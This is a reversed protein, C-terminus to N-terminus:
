SSGSDDDSSGRLMRKVIKIHPTIPPESKSYSTNVYSFSHSQSNNYYSFSPKSYWFSRKVLSMNKPVPEYVENRAVAVSTQICLLSKGDIDFWQIKSNVKGSVFPELFITKVINKSSRQKIISSKWINQFDDGSVTSPWVSMTSRNNIGVVLPCETGENGCLAKHSPSFPIGNLTVSTVVDGDTIEPGPNNFLVTMYVNQGKVPPDPYLALETLKFQSNTDCDKILATTTSIFFLLSSLLKFM